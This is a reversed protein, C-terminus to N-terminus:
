GRWRCDWRRRLNEDRKADDAAPLSSPLVSAAVLALALALALALTKGSAWPGDDDDDGGGGAVTSVASCYTGHNPGSPIAFSTGFPCRKEEERM